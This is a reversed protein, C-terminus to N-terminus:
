EASREHCDPDGLARAIDAPAVDLEFRKVRATQGGILRVASKPAGLTKALLRIVAENAAGDSAAVAVRLALIPRSEADRAWGIVADRGGRPTVRM